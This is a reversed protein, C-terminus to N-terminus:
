PWRRRRFCGLMLFCGPFYGPFADPAGRGSIPRALFFQALYMQVPFIQALFIQVLFIVLLLLLGRLSIRVQLHYALHAQVLRFDAPDPRRDSPAM